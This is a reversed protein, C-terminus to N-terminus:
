TIRSKRAFLETVLRDIETLPSALVERAARRAAGITGLLAAEGIDIHDKIKGACQAGMEAIRMHLADSPDFLPIPALDFLKKHVNPHAAQDRRRLPQLADDVPRSNLLACLYLAESEEGTECCYLATDAVFTRASRTADIICAVGTRQFNPYLVRWRAALNQASLGRVHDLRQPLTMAEAKDGRVRRWEAEARRMWEAMGEFGGEALVGSDLLRLRDGENVAPLAATRVRRAAFPLLDDGLLTAFLFREEVSGELRFDRYAAVPGGRGPQATAIQCSQNSRELVEVFWFSRPVLTAGQRFRAKYPSSEHMAGAKDCGWWSRGGAQHLRVTDNAQTLVTRVCLLPMDPEPLRGSLRLVPIEVRVADNRPRKRAFLVAAPTPFLPTVGEIDILREFSLRSGPSNPLAIRGTRLRHHQDATLVTRPMVFAIRGGEKLEVDSCHALFLTSLDLHTVMEGRGDALGYGVAMRKMRKQPSLPLSRLPVWPPNGIVLDFQRGPSDQKLTDREFVPLYLPGTRKALLPGLALLVNASALEVALPNVDVGQIRGLIEKLSAATDPLSARLRRIAFYLFTGSGCAPDLMAAEPQEALGDAVMWEALWDPTYLEGLSQRTALAILAHHLPKLVDGCIQGLDVTSAAAQLVDAEGLGAPWSFLDPERWFGTVGQEEFWEGTVAGRANRLAGPPDLAHAALFRAIAAIYTHRLFLEETPPTMSFSAHLDAWGRYSASGRASAALARNWSEMCRHFLPSGPGLSRILGSAVTEKEETTRDRKHM